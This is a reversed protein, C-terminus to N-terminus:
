RVSQGFLVRRARLRWRGPDAKQAPNESLGFRDHLNALPKPAWWNFRGLVHMFAPVLAMRVAVSETVYGVLRPDGPRDERVIM